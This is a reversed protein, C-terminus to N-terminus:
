KEQCDSQKPWWLEFRERLIKHDRKSNTLRIDPKSCFLANWLELAVQGLPSNRCSEKDTLFWNSLRAYAQERLPTNLNSLWRHFEKSADTNFHRPWIGDEKDLAEILQRCRDIDLAGPNELQLDCGILSAVKWKPRQFNEERHSRVDESISGVSSPRAPGTDTESHFVYNVESAVDRFKKESIERVEINLKECALRREDPIQNAVVMLEVVSDPFRHKMMGYYDHLQEVAGRQLKGHKVEVVLYRGIRDIFILDSRGVGSGSQREFRTLEEGLFKEPHDWLLDEMEREVM